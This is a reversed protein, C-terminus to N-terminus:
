ILRLIPMQPFKASINQGSVWFRLAKTLVIIRKWQAIFRLLNLGFLGNQKIDFKKFFINRAVTLGALNAESGGSTMAGGANPAFDVMESAWAVVRKEIEAMAPALHWRTNNQNVTSMIFEAVTSIQNGGSMVYGYMNPGLNGTAIDIVKQQIEEFLPEIDMGLLPLSENFWTAVEAQAPANFGKQTGVNRYQQLILKSTKKLIDQFEKPTFDLTKSM